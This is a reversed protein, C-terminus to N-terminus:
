PSSDYRLSRTRSAHMAASFGHTVPIKTFMRQAFAPDRQGQVELHLYVWQESGDHLSVRVLADAVRRGLEADRVVQRLEKDLFVHERTWDIQASATPFYFAMLEPFARLLLDKWPNDFDDAAPM